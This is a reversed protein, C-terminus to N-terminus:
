GRVQTSRFGWKGGLRHFYGNIKFAPKQFSSLAHSYNSPHLPHLLSCSPPRGSPATPSGTQRTSGGHDWPQTAPLELSPVTALPGSTSPMPLAPRYPSASGTLFHGFQIAFGPEWCPQLGPQLGSGEPRGPDRAHLNTGVQGQQWARRMTGPQPSGAPFLRSRQLLAPGTRWSGQGGREM